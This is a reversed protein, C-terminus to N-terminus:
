IILMFQICFELLVYFKFILSQLCGNQQLYFDLHQNLYFLLFFLVPAIVFVVMQMLQKYVRKLRIDDNQITAFLPYTIKNLVNSINSVPLQKMTEARTYFGVQASSFYKGIVILYINNFIRNLLSSLTLKYGFNFHDKFKEINFIFSPSWKSYLWLQITSIFSTVIQSWVLSWVGYDM